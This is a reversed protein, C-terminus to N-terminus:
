LQFTVGFNPHFEPKLWRQGGDIPLNDIIELFDFFPPARRRSTFHGRLQATENFGPSFISGFDFKSELSVLKVPDQQQGQVLANRRRAIDAQGGLLGLASALKQIFDQHRNLVVDRGLQGVDDLLVLTAEGM